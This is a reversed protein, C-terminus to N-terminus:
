TREKGIKSGVRSNGDESFVKGFLKEKKKREEMEIM